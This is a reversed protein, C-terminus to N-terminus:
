HNFFRQITYPYQSEYKLNKSYASDGYVFYSKIFTDIKGNDFTTFKNGIIEDIFLDYDTRIDNIGNIVCGQNYDRLIDYNCKTKENNYAMYRALIEFAMTREAEMVGYYNKDYLDGVENKQFLHYYEHLFSKEDIGTLYLIGSQFKAKVNTELEDQSFWSKGIRISRFKYNNDAMMKFFSDLMEHSRSKKIISDLQHIQTENLYGVSEIVCSLSDPITITKNTSAGTVNLTYPHSTNYVTHPGLHTGSSVPLFPYTDDEIYVLDQMTTTVYQFDITMMSGPTNICEYYQFDDVYEQIESADTYESTSFEAYLMCAETDIHCYINNEDCGKEIKLFTTFRQPLQSLDYAVVENGQAYSTVMYSIILNFRRGLISRTTSNVSSAREYDEDSIVVVHGSINSAFSTLEQNVTLGERNLRLFHNSYLFSREIPINRYYEVNFDIPTELESSKSSIPYSIFGQVIGNEDAYPIAYYYGFDQSKSFTAYDYLPTRNGLISQLEESKNEENIRQLLESSINNGEIYQVRNSQTFEDLHSQCSALLVFL